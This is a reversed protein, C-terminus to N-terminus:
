MINKITSIMTIPSNLKKSVTISLSNLIILNYKNWETIIFHTGKPPQGQAPDPVQIKIYFTATKEISSHFVFCPM